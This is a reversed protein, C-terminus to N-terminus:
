DQPLWAVAVQRQMTADRRVSHLGDGCSTCSDSRWVLKGELQSEAISGLDVSTGGAVSTATFDPFLAAVEPGVEYCCPGIAPGIAAREVELGRDAMEALAAAIVGGLLGRWGAHIVAAVRPGEVIVPVCDATAVTMPLGPAASFVADAEGLFGPATAELVESGHVQNVYAWERSIGLYSSIAARARPDRRADGDAAEGFAAGRLGPPRIM